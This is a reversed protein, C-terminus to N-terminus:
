DLDRGAKMVYLIAIVVVVLVGVYFWDLPTMWTLFSM